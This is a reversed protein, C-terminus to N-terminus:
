KAGLYKEYWFNGNEQCIRVQKRLWRECKAHYIALLHYIHKM